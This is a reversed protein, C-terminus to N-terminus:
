HKDAGEDFDEINGMLDKSTRYFEEYLGPKVLGQEEYVRAQKVAEYKDLEKVFKAEPTQAEEFELWLDLIEPMNYTDSIRKIAVYEREFKEAKSVNDVPTIDGVDIEGLEHYVIMKLVKLKNLKLDNKSMMELGLLVMGCTHEADSEARGEVGRLRWGRRLVNKLKFIEDYFEMKGDKM